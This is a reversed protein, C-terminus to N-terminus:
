RLWGSLAPALVAISTGAEPRLANLVAGAGTQIGCGFPAVIELPISPDLRTVNRETAVAYTAFSSQSFFHCLIPRGDRALATSGDPRTAGLNRGVFEHCVWPRGLQCKPCRGCSGYSM